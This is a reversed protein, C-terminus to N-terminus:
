ALSAKDREGFGGGGRRRGEVHVEERPLRLPGQIAHVLGEGEYGEAWPPAGAGCCRCRRFGGVVAM